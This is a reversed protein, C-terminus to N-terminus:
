GPKVPSQLQAFSAYFSGAKTKRGVVGFSVQLSEVWQSNAHFSGCSCGILSTISWLVKVWLNSAELMEFILLIQQLFAKIGSVQFWECNESIKNMNWCEHIGHPHIWTIPHFSSFFWCCIYWVACFLSLSLIPLFYAFVTLLLCAHVLILKVFHFHLVSSYTIWFFFYDSLLTWLVPGVNIIKMRESYWQARAGKSMCNVAEQGWVLHCSISWFFFFFQLRPIYLPFGAVLVLLLGVFVGM